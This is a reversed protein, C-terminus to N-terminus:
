MIGPRAKCKSRDMMVIHFAPHVMVKKLITQVITYWPLVVTHPWLHVKVPSHIIGKVGLIVVDEVKMDAMLGLEMLNAAFRLTM